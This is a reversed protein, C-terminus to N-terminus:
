EIGDYDQPASEANDNDQRRKNDDDVMDSVAKRTYDSITIKRAKAAADLATYEGDTLYAVLTRERRLEAPVPKRGVRRGIRPSDDAM